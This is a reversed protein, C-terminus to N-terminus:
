NNIFMDNVWGRPTEGTDSLLLSAAKWFRLVMHRFLSNEQSPPLPAYYAPLSGDLIHNSFMYQRKFNQKITATPSSIKIVANLMVQCSWPCTEVGCILRQYIDCIMQFERWCVIKNISSTICIDSAVYKSMLFCILFVAHVSKMTMTWWQSSCSSVHDASRQSPLGTVSVAKCHQSHLNSDTSRWHAQQPNATVHISQSTILM